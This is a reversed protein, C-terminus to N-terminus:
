CAIRNSRSSSKRRRIRNRGAKWSIKSVGSCIFCSRTFKVTVVRFFSFSICASFLIKWPYNQETRFVKREKFINKLSINSGPLNNDCFNIQILYLPFIQKEETPVVEKLKTILLTSRSLFSNSQWNEWM